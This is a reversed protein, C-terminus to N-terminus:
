KSNTRKEGCRVAGVGALISASLVGSYIRDRGTKKVNFLSVGGETAAYFELIQSNPITGKATGCKRHCDTGAPWGSGIVKRTRIVASRLCNQSLEGIYQFMTCDWRIIDSWFQSASFKRTNGCGWRQRPHCRVLVGGISHYMPLCNYMRDTQEAGMMGAFWHSGNYSGRM